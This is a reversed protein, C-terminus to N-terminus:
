RFLARALGQSDVKKPGKKVEKVAAKVERGSIIFGLFSVESKFFEAKEAKAFLSHKRLQELVWPVDQLHDEKSSSVWNKKGDGNGVSTVRAYVKCQLATDV